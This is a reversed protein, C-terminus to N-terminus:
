EIRKYIKLENDSDVKLNGQLDLELLQPTKFAVWKIIFITPKSTKYITAFEFNEDGGVVIFDDGNKSITSVGWNQFNFKGEISKVDQKEAIISPAIKVDEAEKLVVVKVDEVPTIKNTIPEAVVEKVMPIKIETPTIVIEKPEISNKNQDNLSSDYAYNLEELDVFADRIAEQYAKKYVKEKSSGEKTSFIIKNKCDYLDITMKTKFMSSNKNVKAKLALCSNNALDDPYQEDTYLVTYGAKNFLFNTLSNLQYQDEVNQFEFQKPVLIYKYSNINNQAFLISCFLIFVLSISFSKNM